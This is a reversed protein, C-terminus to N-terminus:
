VQPKVAYFGAYKYARICWTSSNLSSHVWKPLMDAELTCTTCVLLQAGHLSDFRM